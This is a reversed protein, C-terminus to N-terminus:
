LEGRNGARATFEFKNVACYDQFSGEDSPPKCSTDISEISGGTQDFALTNTDNTGVELSIRYLAQQLAPDHAVQTIAFSQLAVNREGDMLLEHANEQVVPKTLDGCYAKGRDDVRVMRIPQDSNEYVNVPTDTYQGLNWIYSVSGTCLRAGAINSSNPAPMPKYDTGEEGVSIPSSSSISSQMDQSLAMGLQNVEKLTVGKAYINSMQIVTMTIAVLLLSVFAMALMLEVLTFGQNRARSM